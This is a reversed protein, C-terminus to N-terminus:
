RVVLVPVPALKLCGEAVSGLLLREVGGVGRAGIVLLDARAEELAALLEGLPAGYRVSAKVRWGRRALAARAADLSKRARALEARELEGMEAAIHARASRSLLSLSRPRAPELARVVTVTGRPRPVLRALFAAARRSQPSGDIGLVVRRFEARDSM